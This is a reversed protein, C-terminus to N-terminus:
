INSSQNRLVFLYINEIDESVRDYRWWSKNRWSFGQLMRNGSYAMLPHESQKKQITVCLNLSPVYSHLTCSWQPLPLKDVGLNYFLKTDDQVHNVIAKSGRAKYQGSVQVKPQNKRRLRKQSSFNTSNQNTNYGNYYSRHLTIKFNNNIYFHLFNTSINKSDAWQNM